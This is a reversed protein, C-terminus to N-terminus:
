DANKEPEDTKVTDTLYIFRAAIYIFLSIFVISTSVAELDLESLLVTRILISIGGTGCLSLALCSASVYLMPRPNGAAFRLEVTSYLMVSLATFQLLLKDPSNMEVTYDFYSSLIILLAWAAPMLGLAVRSNLSLKTGRVFATYYVFSLVATVASLIGTLSFEQSVIMIYISTLAYLLFGIAPAAAYSPKGSELSYCVSGFGRPLIVASIAFIVTVSLVAYFCIVSFSSNFYAIDPNYSLLYSLTGFLINAGALAISTIKYISLLKTKNDKALTSMQTRERRSSM